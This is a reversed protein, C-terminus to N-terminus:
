AARRAFYANRIRAGFYRGKSDAELLGLAEEPPVDAYDWVSGSTFEIELMRTELDYGVARLADSDVRYRRM